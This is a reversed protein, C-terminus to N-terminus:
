LRLLWVKSRGGELYEYCRPVSRIWFPMFIMDKLYTFCKWCYMLLRSSIELVTLAWKRDLNNAQEINTKFDVGRLGAFPPMSDPCQSRWMDGPRPRWAMYLRIRASWHRSPIWDIWDNTGFQTKGTIINYIMSLSQLSKFLQKNRKSLM